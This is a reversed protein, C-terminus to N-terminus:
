CNKCTKKEKRGDMKNRKATSFLATPDPPPLTCLLVCFFNFLTHVSILIWTYRCITHTPFHIFYVYEYIEETKSTRLENKKADNRENALLCSWCCCCRLFHIVILTNEHIYFSKSSEEERRRKRCIYTCLLLSCMGTKNVWKNNKPRQTSIASLLREKKSVRPDM